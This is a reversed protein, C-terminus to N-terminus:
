LLFRTLLLIIKTIHDISRVHLGDKKNKSNHEMTSESINYWKCCIFYSVLDILMLKFHSFIEKHNKKTINSYYKIFLMINKEELLNTQLSTILFYCFDTIGNGRGLWQYDILYFDDKSIIINGLKFDGHIITENQNNYFNEIDSEYYKIKEYLISVFKKTYNTKFNSNFHEFMEYIKYQLKSKDIKRKNETWYGGISWGQNKYSPNKFFQHFNVLKNIIKFTQINDFGNEYEDTYNINQMIINYEFKVYDFFLEHIEPIKFGIDYIPQNKMFNYFNYEIEYSKNYLNEKNSFLFLCKSKLLALIKYNGIIKNIKHVKDETFIIEGHCGLKSM